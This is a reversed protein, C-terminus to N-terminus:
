KEVVEAIAERQDLQLTKLALRARWLDVRALPLQAKSKGLRDHAGIETPQARSYSECHVGDESDANRESKKKQRDRRGFCCSRPFVALRLNALAQVEELYVRRVDVLDSVLCLAASAAVIILNDTDQGPDIQMGALAVHDDIQRLM